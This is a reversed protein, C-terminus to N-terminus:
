KVGKNLLEIVSDSFGKFMGEKEKFNTPYVDNGFTFLRGSGYKERAYAFAKTFDGKETLDPIERNYAKELATMAHPSSVSFDKLPDPLKLSNSLASRVDGGLNSHYGRPTTSGDRYLETKALDYEASATVHAINHGLIKGGGTIYDSIAHFSSKAYDLVPKAFEAIEHGAFWLAGVKGISYALSKGQGLDAIVRCIAAIFKIFVVTGALYPISSFVSVVGLLLLILTAIPGGFKSTKLIFGFMKNLTSDNKLTKNKISERIRSIYAQIKDDVRPFTTIDNMKDLARRIANFFKNLLGKPPNKGSLSFKDSIATIHSPDTTGKDIFKKIVEETDSGSSTVGETLIERFNACWEALEKIFPDIDKQFQYTLRKLEPSWDDYYKVSEFLSGKYRNKYYKDETIIIQTM